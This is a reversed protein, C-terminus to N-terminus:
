WHVQLLYQLGKFMNVPERSPLNWGVKVSRTKRYYQFIIEVYAYVLYYRFKLFNLDKPKKIIM